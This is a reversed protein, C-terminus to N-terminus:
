VVAFRIFQRLDLGRVDVVRGVAVGKFRRLWRWGVSALRVFCRPEVGKSWRVWGSEVRKDVTSEAMWGGKIGRFCKWRM